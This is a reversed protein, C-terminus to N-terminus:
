RNSYLKHSFLNSVQVSSADSSSETAYSPLKLKCINGIAQQFLMLCSELYSVGQSAIYQGMDPQYRATVERVALPGLLIGGLQILSLWRMPVNGEIM